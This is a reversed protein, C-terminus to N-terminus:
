ARVTVASGSFRARLRDRVSDPIAIPSPSETGKPHVFSESYDGLRFSQLRGAAAYDGDASFAMAAIACTLDVIDAPIVQYGHTYTVVVEVPLTQTWGTPMQLCDGVKTWGAVLGPVAPPILVGAVTVTAVTAVPGAPLNLTCWDDAVLTVTSPGYTISCEAADRVAASASDLTTAADVGAPVTINRATLDATTALAALM